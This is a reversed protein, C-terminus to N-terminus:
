HKSITDYEGKTLARGILEDGDYVDYYLTTTIVTM